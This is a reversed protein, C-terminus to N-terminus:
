YHRNKSTFYLLHNIPIDCEFHRRSIIKKNNKYFYKDYLGSTFGFDFNKIVMDIAREDFYNNNGFPFAFLKCPDGLENEIKCKSMIIEYNLEKDSLGKLCAHSNTHCGINHGLDNLERLMKWDMINKKLNVRLNNVIFNKIYTPDNNEISLPNVFFTAKINHKELIPLMIKFCEEFGDDFTLALKPSKCPEKKKIINIATDLDIIEFINKIKIIFNEFFSKSDKNLNKSIFHGNLIHVYNSPVSNISLYNLLIHRILSRIRMM